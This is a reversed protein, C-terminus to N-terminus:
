SLMGQTDRYGLASFIHTMALEERQLDAITLAVRLMRHLGRLSLGLKDAAAGLKERSTQDLRCVQDLQKASLRANSCGQRQLQIQRASAVRLRVTESSEGAPLQNRMVDSTAQSRVAVWLDIRDLLPGSIRRQYRTIQDRSCDCRDTGAYGCPCPNMAAVLQFSAPYVERGSSRSVSIEGNELPERMAQLVKPAFEPFEDLFLVGRHALTIEGPMPPAGGGVLAAASATHHPSRIPPETPQTRHSGCVSHISAVERADQMNLQPLLGPLRQALMSKGSGPCGVLLINHGGAAAIELAAKAEAQGCIDMLDLQTSQVQTECPPHATTQSSRRKGELIACAELLNNAAEHCSEDVLGQHHARDPPHVLRVHDQEARLLLPFLGRLPRCEGELSLEGCFALNSQRCNVQGSAILLALAIPLDYGGGQKPLDAPSLNLTIRKNPFEFGSNLIASRVRERSERVITEALGVINFAPLGGSIHADVSVPRARIGQIGYTQTTATKM